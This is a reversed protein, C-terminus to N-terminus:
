IEHTIEQGDQIDIKMEIFSITDHKTDVDKFIPTHSSNKIWGVFFLSNENDQINLMSTMIDGTFDNQIKRQFGHIKDTLLLDKIFNKNYFMSGAEIGKLENLNTMFSHGPRIDSIIYFKNRYLIFSNDLSNKSFNNVKVILNGDESYAQGQVPCKIVSELNLFAGTWREQNVRYRTADKTQAIEWRSIKEPNDTSPYFPIASVPNETLTFSQTKKKSTYFGFIHHSKAFTTRGSKAIHHFSNSVSSTGTFKMQYFFFSVSIFISICSLLLTSYILRNKKTLLRSIILHFIIYYTCLLLAYFKYAPFTQNMNSVLGNIMYMEKLTIGSYTKLPNEELLKTWFHRNGEWNVFSTSNLNLTLLIISGLNKAKKILIPIEQEKLIIKSNKISAKPIIFPDSGTLTYGCYNKLSNIAKTKYIGSVNVSVVDQMAPESFASYDNGGSTILQGGREIWKSLADVQIKKIDKFIGPQIFIARIGSYGYWNNPLHKPDPAVPKFKPPLTSLFDISIKTGLVLILEKETYLDRLHIEKELLSETGSKLKIRLPHIFSDIYVIFSYQKISHDPLDVHARYVTTHIDDRYENGSSVDVELTGSIDRSNNELTINIPVWSKLKFASQFGTTINIKIDNTESASLPHKMLIIAILIILCLKLLNQM